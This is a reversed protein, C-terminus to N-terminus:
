LRVFVSKPMYFFNGKAPGLKAKQKYKLVEDLIMKIDEKDFEDWREEISDNTDDEIRGAVVNQDHIIIGRKNKSIQLHKVYRVSLINCLHLITNKFQEIRNLTSM